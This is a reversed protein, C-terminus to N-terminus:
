YNYLTWGAPGGTYLEDVHPAEAQWVPEDDDSGRDDELRDDDDYLDDEDLELPGYSFEFGTPDTDHADLVDRQFAAAVDAPMHARAEDWLVARQNVRAEEWFAADARNPAGSVVRRVVERLMDRTTM